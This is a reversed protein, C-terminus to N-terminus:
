DKLVIITLDFVIKNEEKVKFRKVNWHQELQSVSINLTNSIIIYSCLKFSCQTCGSHSASPNKHAERKGDEKKEEEMQNPLPHASPTNTQIQTHTHSHTQIHQPM